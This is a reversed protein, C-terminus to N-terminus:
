PPVVIVDGASRYGNQPDYLWERLSDKSPHQISQLVGNTIDEDQDPGNCALVFWSQGDTYYRYSQSYGGAIFPDFAVTNIIEPTIINITEGDVTLSADVVFRSAPMNPYCGYQKHINDISEALSQMESEARVATNHLYEYGVDTIVPLSLFIGYVPIFSLLLLSFIRNKQCLM